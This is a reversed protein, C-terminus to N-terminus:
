NQENIVSFLAGVRLRSVDLARDFGFRGWTRLTLFYLFFGMFFMWSNKKKRLLLNELYLDGFFSFESNENELDAIKTSYLKLFASPRIQVSVPKIGTSKSDVADAM